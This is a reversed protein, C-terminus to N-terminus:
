GRRRLPGARDPWGPRGNAPPSSITHVILRLATCSQRAFVFPYEPMCMASFPNAQPVVMPISGPLIFRQIRMFLLGAIPQLGSSLLLNLIRQSDM